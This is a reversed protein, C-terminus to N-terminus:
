LPTCKLQWFNHEGTCVKWCALPTVTPPAVLAATIQFLVLESLVAPVDRLAHGAPSACTLSLAWSSARSKQRGTKTLTLCVKNCNPAAVAQKAKQGGM